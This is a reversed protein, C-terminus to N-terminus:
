NLGDRKPCSHFYYFIFRSSLNLGRASMLYSVAAAAHISHVQGGRWILRRQAYGTSAYFRNAYSM